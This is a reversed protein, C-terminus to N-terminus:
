PIIKLINAGGTTDCWVDGSSLGSPSTPISFIHPPGKLFTEIQEVQEDLAIIDEAFLVKTKDEDYVVGTRNEKPRGNFITAPFISM